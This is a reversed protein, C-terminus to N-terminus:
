QKTSGCSQRASISRAVTKSMTMTKAKLRITRLQCCSTVVIVYLRANSGNNMEFILSHGYPDVM